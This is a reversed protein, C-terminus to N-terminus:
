GSLVAIVGHVVLYAAAVVLVVDIVPGQRRTVWQRIRELITATRAPARCALVYAVLFSMQSVVIVVIIGAVRPGVGSVSTLVAGVAAAIVPWGQLGAGLLAAGRLGMGDIGALWKPAAPERSVHTRRWLLLGLAALGAVVQVIGASAVVSSAQSVHGSGAVLVTALAVLVASCTWGVMFAPANRRSDKSALVAIFALVGLPELAAVVALVVAATM